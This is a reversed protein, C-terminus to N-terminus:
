SAPWNCGHSSANEPIPREAGAVNNTKLVVVNTAGLRSIEFSFVPATTSIHFTVEEGAAYSVKGAYGEVFLPKLEAYVPLTAVFYLLLRFLHMTRTSALM